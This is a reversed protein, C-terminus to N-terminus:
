FARHASQEEGYIEVNRAYSMRPGMLEISGTIPNGDGNGIPFCQPAKAGQTATRMLM